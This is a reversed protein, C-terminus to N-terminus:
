GEDDEGPDAEDSGDGDSDDGNSAAGEDSATWQQRAWEACAIGCATAVNLSGIKGLLPLYVAGDCADLTATSVGHDEHGLVLCVDGTLDAEHAPLAGHSLEVALVRFGLARAAVVAAPGDAVAEVEFFRESGMSTRGVQPHDVGTGNETCWLRAVRYAAATRLINGVNHPGQIGDLILGLRGPTRRRWGRHLRKLDTPRLQRM